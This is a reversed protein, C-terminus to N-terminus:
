IKELRKNGAHRTWYIPACGFIGQALGATTGNPTPIAVRFWHIPAM